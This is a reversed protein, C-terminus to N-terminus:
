PIEYIEILAVGSENATPSLQASYAGPALVAVIAADRSNAPLAFAGIQSFVPALTAPWNDNTEVLTQGRYIALKPDALAGVIGFPALSPGIGRILITKPNPGTIVFGGILANEGPGVRARASLNSLRPLGSSGLDYGEMLAIGTGGGLAVSYLGAELPVVLASDNSGDPLAFAGALRAATGADPEDSWNDNSALSRDAAYLELKPDAVVSSVGFSRLTPGVGRFLMGKKGAGSLVIGIIPQDNSTTSGVRVSINALRSSAPAVTSDRWTAKLNYAPIVSSQRFSTVKVYYTGETVTSLSIASFKGIGGDDDHAIPDTLNGPGYLWLETDGTAGSTEIRLDFAGNPGITFRAWDVDANQHISHSQAVGNALARANAPSDDPELADGAPPASADSWTVRLSYAAIPSDAGVEGVKIYYVGAPLATLAITSFKTTGADDNYAALANANNPGYLFLETDGAPGATEIQINRAGNAGITFTAWDVDIPTHLSRNQRVGNAIPKATAPTDDSEFADRREEWTVRLQYSSIAASQGFSQIRAWYTGEPLEAFTVRSFKGDADDNSAIPVTTSASGFVALETDGLEGSTEIRVSTAGNQGITFSVWDVDTAVHLSREQREGNAISKALASTDDSEFPDPRDTWSARLTYSAVGPATIKIYYTGAGLGNLVVLSARSSGSDDNFALEKGLDRSDYITLQTDPPNTGTEAVGTEIRINSAGGSGIVFRVWDVDGFHFTRLQTEGNAILKAASAVDDPEYRDQAWGASAVACGLGLVLVHRWVSRTLAAFYGTM